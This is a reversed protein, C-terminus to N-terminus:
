VYRNSLTLVEAVDFLYFVSAPFSPISPHPLVAFEMGHLSALSGAPASPTPSGALRRGFAVGRRGSSSPGTACAAALSFSQERTARTAAHAGRVISHSYLLM